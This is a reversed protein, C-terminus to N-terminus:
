LSEEPRDPAGRAQPGAGQDLGRRDVRIHHKRYVWELAADGRACIIVRQVPIVGYQRAFLDYGAIIQGIVSRTLRQKVEIVEVPHGQIDQQFEAAYRAFPLIGQTDALTYVRVADLRRITSHARWAPDGQPGALPVETYLRGKERTWYAYLLGDEGLRPIWAV